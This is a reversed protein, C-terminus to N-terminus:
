ILLSPPYATKLHMKFSFEHTMKVRKFLDEPSVVQKKKKKIETEGNAQIM